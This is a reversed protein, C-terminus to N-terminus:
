ESHEESLVSMGCSRSVIEAGVRVRGARLRYACAWLRGRHRQVTVENCPAGAAGAGGGAMGVAQGARGVVGAVGSM